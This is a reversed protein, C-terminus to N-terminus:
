PINTGTNKEPAEPPPTGFKEPPVEEFPAVPVNLAAFADRLTREDTIGARGEGVRRLTKELDKLDIM